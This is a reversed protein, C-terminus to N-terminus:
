QSLHYLPINTIVTGKHDEKKRKKTYDRGGALEKGYRSSSGPDRDPSRSDDYARRKQYLM